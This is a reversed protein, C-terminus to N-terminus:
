WMRGAPSISMSAPAPWRRRCSMLGSLAPRVRHGLLRAGCALPHLARDSGPHSEPLRVVVAVLDAAGARGSDLVALALQGGADALRRVLARVSAVGVPDAADPRLHAGGREAPFLDRVCARALVTGACGGTAQVFRAIDLTVPGPGPRLGALGSYLSGPGGSAALPPRLPGVASRGRGPRHCAWFIPPWRINWRPSPSQRIRARHHAPGAHVHRRRHPHLHDAGRVARDTRFAPAALLDRRVLPLFRVHRRNSLPM